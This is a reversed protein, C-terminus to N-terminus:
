AEVPLEEEVLADMIQNVLQDESELLQYFEPAYQQMLGDIASSHIDDLITENVQEALDDWGKERLVTYLADIYKTSYEGIIDFVSQLERFANQALADTFQGNISKVELVNDQIISFKIGVLESIESPYYDSINNIVFLNEQLFPMIQEKELQSIKELNEIRM